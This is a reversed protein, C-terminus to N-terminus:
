IRSLCNAAHVDITSDYLAELGRVCNEPLRNLFMIFTKITPYMEPSMKFAILKTAADGFLNYLVVFHNLILRERLEGDRRYKMLLRKISSIRAIDNLFEEQGSCSPNDYNKIAYMMFNDETLIVSDM